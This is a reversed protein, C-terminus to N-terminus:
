RASEVERVGLDACRSRIRSRLHESWMSPVLLVVHEPEAVVRVPVSAVEGQVFGREPLELASLRAFADRTADGDLAWAAWGDSVELVVADPDAGTTREHAATVVTNTEDPADALLMAEDPAIRFARAGDPAADVVADVADASAVCTVVGTETARLELM